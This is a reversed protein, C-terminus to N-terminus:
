QGKEEIIVTDILQVGFTKKAGKKAEYKIDTFTLDVLFVNGVEIIKDSTEVINLTNEKLFIGIGFGISKPM